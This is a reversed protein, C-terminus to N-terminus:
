AEKQTVALYNNGGSNFTCLCVSDKCSPFICYNDGDQLYEFTDKWFRIENSMKVQTEEVV